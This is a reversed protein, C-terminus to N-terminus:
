GTYISANLATLATGIYSAYAYAYTTNNIPSGGSSQIGILKNIGNQKLYVPAGSDGNRIYHGNNTDMSIGYGHNLYAVNALTGVCNITGHVNGSAKGEFYVITNVPASSVWQTITGGSVATYSPSFSMNIQPIFACDRDNTIFSRASSATGFESSVGNLSAYVTAYNSNFSGYITFFPHGCTIIGPWQVGNITVYAWICATFSGSANSIATGPKLAATYSRKDYSIDITNDADNIMRELKESKNPYNKLFELLSQETSDDLIKVILKNIDPKYGVYLNSAHSYKDMLECLAQFEGLSYKCVEFSVKDGCIKLYEARLLADDTTLCIVLENKSNIYCGAYEDPWVFYDTYEDLGWYDYLAYYANLAEDQNQTLVESTAESYINLGEAITSYGLTSIIIMLSLLLAGIRKITNQLSKKM